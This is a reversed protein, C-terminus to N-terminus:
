DVVRVVVATLDDHQVTGAAFNHAAACLEELLTQANSQRHRAVAEAARKWGFLEGQPSMTETLGDTPIVVVDGPSLAIPASVDFTAENILGLVHGTSTLRLVDNNARVIIAEHGAASYILSRGSPDFRVLLMTVFMESPLDGVLIQNLRRMCVGLDQEHSAIARLSARTGVMELAPGLGHGTVDGVAVFLAHDDVPLFDYYDGCAHRSPISVGAVELGPLRPVQQPYLAQQVKHATRLEQEVRESSIRESIDRFAVVAGVIQGSERIPTAIYEVPLLTGNRCRFRADTIRLGEDGRLAAVVPCERVSSDRPVIITSRCEGKLEEVTWGLMREAAENLFVVQGAADLGCIGDTVAGLILEYRHKLSEIEQQTRLRDTIDTSIGAIAEMRGKTDYLPFKLSLYTHLGETSPAFEECEISQGTEAVFVDNKRFGDALEAPFCEYDTKGLIESRTISFLSEYQRNILLYRFSLDKVYIVSSTNDIIDQFLGHLDRQLTLLQGSM